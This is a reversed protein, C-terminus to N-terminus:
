APRATTGDRYHALAARTRGADLPRCGRDVARAMVEDEARYLHMGRRLITAPPKRREKLDRAARRVLNKWRDRRVVIADLLLGRRRLDDTLEPAFIGEAVFAGTGVEVTRMGNPGNAAIDYVPVEAHGERCLQEIADLAGQRDWSDPHDWDVIGLEPHRPLTPDSGARYFDDLYVMPLGVARVITSKGSGSPGALLIVRRAASTAPDPAHEPSQGDTAM